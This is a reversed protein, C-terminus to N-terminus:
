MEAASLFFVYVCVNEWLLYLSPPSLSTCPGSQELFPLLLKHLFSVILVEGAKGFAFAASSKFLRNKLGPLNLRISFRRSSIGALCWCSTRLQEAVTVFGM